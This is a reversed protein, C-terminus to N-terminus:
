LYKASGSNQVTDVEDASGIKLTTNRPYGKGVLLSSVSLTENVSRSKKLFFSSSVSSTTTMKRGTALCPGRAEAAVKPVPRQRAIAERIGTETM